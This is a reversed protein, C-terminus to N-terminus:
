IQGSPQIQREMWEAVRRTKYQGLYSSLFWAPHKEDLEYRRLYPELDFNAKLRRLKERWTGSQLKPAFCIAHFLKDTAPTAREIIAIILQSWPGENTCSHFATYHGRNVFKKGRLGFAVPDINIACHAMPTLLSARFPTSQVRISLNKEPSAAAIARELDVIEGPREGPFNVINYIDVGAGKESLRSIHNIGATIQQDTLKKGYAFRLRESCGDLATLIVNTPLVDWGFVDKFMVESKHGTKTDSKQYTQTSTSKRSWSYHCFRCKYPCGILKEHWTGRGSITIGHQYLDVTQAMVVASLDPLRMVSPHAYDGGGLIAAVLPEVIGEGRGFVAYDLYNRIATPNQMGFGGGVVAFTRKGPQWNPRLAVAQYYAILDYTSTYSVLVVQYKHATEPACFDVSIGARQLCDIVVYAGVNDNGDFSNDKRRQKLPRYVLFAVDSPM